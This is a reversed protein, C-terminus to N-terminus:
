KEGKKTKIWEMLDEKSVRWQGGVRFVPLGNIEKDRVMNYMTAEGVQLIERAEKLKLLTNM